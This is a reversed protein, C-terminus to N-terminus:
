PISSVQLEGSHVQGTWVGSVTAGPKSGLPPAVTIQADANEYEAVLTRAGQQDHLLTSVDVSWWIMQGPKLTVVRAPDARFRSVKAGGQESYVVWLALQDKAGTDTTAGPDVVQVKSDGNDRLYVEVSQIVSVAPQPQNPAAAVTQAAIGLQAGGPATDGWLIPSQAKQDSEAHNDACGLATLLLVCCTYRLMNM